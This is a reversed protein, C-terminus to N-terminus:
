RRITRIQDGQTIRLLVPVGDTVEGFVTYGGDLHPQQALTIFWQSAGTDPGSLAMGLVYPDYRRRNIEDRIAGGPGGFGDGRPDGAQVVFNPIVRHFRIGDFFRRDVLGLFNAVTLPAEPGFLELEVVGLREVDMRVKPYRSPLQGVVYKRAIDRYDELSRGTRVPYASGWADSAVPWNAEAWRRILYDQPAPIAPLAQHDVARAAEASMKRIEMLAGLASLEADPFSDPRARKISSVLGPIDTADAGRSLVDAAVVRVGADSSSLLKRSMDLLDPDPGEVQGAWAQFAAAVVRPDRDTLFRTRSAGAYRAWGEAAAARERWDSSAEYRPAAAAYTASDLKALSLLAARRRAFTGKTGGAVRALEALAGQGPLDGLAEAAQVQVNDVQDELLPLVKPIARESHFTALSRLGQVRVGADPDTTTRLLVDVVSGPKLGASDAYASTLTRTAAARVQPATRDSLADLMRSAAARAKLRGLSYIAAYRTDEKADGVLGLLGDIPARPGLRWAELAARRALYIADDRSPLATGELVGRIFGAARDGGLRAVATILELAAPGSLPTPDRSRDLLHAVGDSDGLIGIAFIANAQVLSDPDLLLRQLLPLGRPDKLRGISMAAASRVTSDPNSLASRLVPVNFQRSDEAALLTAIIEVNAEQAALRIPCFGLLTLTALGIPMRLLRM